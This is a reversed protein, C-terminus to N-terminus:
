LDSKRVESKQRRTKKRKVKGTKELASIKMIAPRDPAEYGITEGTKFCVEKVVDYVNPEDSVPVLCHLRPEAQAKTLKIRGAKLFLPKGTITIEEM